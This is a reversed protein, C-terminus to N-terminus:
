KDANLIIGDKLFEITVSYKFLEFLLNNIRTLCNSFEIDDPRELGIINNNDIYGDLDLVARFKEDDLSQSSRRYNVQIKNDNDFLLYSMSNNLTVIGKISIPEVTDDVFEFTHKAESKSNFSKGDIKRIAIRTLSTFKDLELIGKIVRSVISLYKDIKQYSDNCNINLCVFSASIDLFVDQVPEIKSTYFRYINVTDTIDIPVSGIELENPSLSISFNDTKIVNKQSFWTSLDEQLSNCISVIDIVPTFDVRIIIKKLLSSQFNDRTYSDKNMDVNKQHM